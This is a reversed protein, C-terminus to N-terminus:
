PVGRVVIPGLLNAVPLPLKAWIRPGWAYARDDPSPTAAAGRAQQYWWLAEDQGGWQLKFRHTGSGPTCRGFNFRALGAGISREVFASYLLMNPALKNHEALSSAWTMEFERGWRFGIGGAVPQDGLWAVGVWVDDGFQRAIEDFWVKPMVPTGLDRMNRAFVRYFAAIQEAGFRVVVGEKQPRRIQSRLKSGIQKQFMEADAPLVRVVTVKRHSAPLSVPLSVASRLELLKAGTRDAEAVAAETLAIIAQDSGLPGGYNVFPMSVLFRGFWPSTVAVLPLVGVLRGADTAALPLYQHGFAASIVERWGLRHFATFGRQGAAFDDWAQVPGSFPAIALTVFPADRAM